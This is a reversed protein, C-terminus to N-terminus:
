NLNTLGLSPVEFASLVFCKHDGFGSFLLGPIFMGIRSEKFFTTLLQWVSWSLEPLSLHAVLIMQNSNAIRAWLRGPVSVKLLGLLGVFTKDRQIGKAVITM